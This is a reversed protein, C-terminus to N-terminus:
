EPKEITTNRLRKSNSRPENEELLYKLLFFYVFGTSKSELKCLSYVYLSRDINKIDHLLPPYDFSKTKWYNEHELIM